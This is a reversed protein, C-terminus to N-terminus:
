IVCQYFSFNKTPSKEFAEPFAAKRFSPPVWLSKGMSHPSDWFPACGPLSAGRKTPTRHWPGTLPPHPGMGRWPWRPGSAPGNMAPWHRLRPAAVGLRDAYIWLYTFARRVYDRTEANPLSEIYLLPDEDEAMTASRRSIASPGANYSALMRIM